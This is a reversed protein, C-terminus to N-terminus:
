ASSLSLTPLLWRGRGVFTPVLFKQSFVKTMTTRTVLRSGAFVSAVADNDAGIGFGHAHLKSLRAESGDRGEREDPQRNGYM